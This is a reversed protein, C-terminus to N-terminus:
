PQFSPLKCLMSLLPLLIISISICFRFTAYPLFFTSSFTVRVNLLFSITVITPGFPDPFVVRKLAIIPEM